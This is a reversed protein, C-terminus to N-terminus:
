RLARVSIDRFSIDSWESNGISLLHPHLQVRSVGDEAKSIRYVCLQLNAFPQHSRVSSFLAFWCWDQMTILYRDGIVIYGLRVLEYCPLVRPYAPGGADNKKGVSYPRAGLQFPRGLGGLTVARLALADEIELPPVDVSSRNTSTSWLFPALNLALVVMKITFLSKINGNMRLAADTTLFDTLRLEFFEQSTVVTAIRADFEFWGTQALDFRLLHMFYFFLITPGFLVDSVRRRLLKALLNLLSFYLLVLEGIAPYVLFWAEGLAKQDGEFQCGVAFFAALTMKLRPLLLIPLLVFYRLAALCGIGTLQAARSSKQLVIIAILWRLLLLGLSLNSVVIAISYHSTVCNVTDAEYMFLGFRSGNSVTVSSYWLEHETYSLSEGWTLVTLVPDAIVTNRWDIERAGATVDFQREVIGFKNTPSTSVLDSYWRMGSDDEYWGNRWQGDPRGLWTATREERVTRNIAHMHLTLGETTKYHQSLRFVCASGDWGPVAFRSGYSSDWYPMIMVPLSKLLLKTTSSHVDDVVRLADRTINYGLISCVTSIAELSSALLDCMPTYKTFSAPDLSPKDRACVRYGNVTSDTTDVVVAKSSELAARVQVPKYVRGHLVCAVVRDSYPEDNYGQIPYAGKLPDQGFYLSEKTTVVTWFISLVQAFLIIVLFGWLGWNYCCALVPTFRRHHFGECHPSTPTAKDLPQVACLRTM